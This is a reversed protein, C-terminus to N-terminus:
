ENNMYKKNARFADIAMAVLLTKNNIVNDVNYINIINTHDKNM